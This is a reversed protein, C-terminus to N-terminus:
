EGRIPWRAMSSSSRETTETSSIMFGHSLWPSLSMSRVGKSRILRIDSKRMPQNNSSNGFGDFIARVEVGEAAKRVLRTMLERNISDNRFNFYELHISSRAQEVAKFLDDFKEQGTMLLTVSNNHSFTVGKSRLQEVM